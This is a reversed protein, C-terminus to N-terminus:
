TEYPSPLSWDWYETAECEKRFYNHIKDAHERGARYLARYIEADIQTKTKAM